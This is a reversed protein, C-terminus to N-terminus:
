RSSFSFFLAKERILLKKMSLFGIGLTAATLYLGTKIESWTQNSDLQVYVEISSQM